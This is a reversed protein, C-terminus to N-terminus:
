ETKTRRSLLSIFMKKQMREIKMEGGDTSRLILCYIFVNHLLETKAAANKNPDLIIQPFLFRYNYWIHLCQACLFDTAPQDFQRYFCLHHRPFHVLLLEGAELYTNHIRFSGGSDLDQAINWLNLLVVSARTMENHVWEGAWNFFPGCVFGTWTPPPLGFACSELTEYAMLPIELLFWRMKQRGGLSFVINHYCLSCHFISLWSNLNNLIGYIHLCSEFVCGKKKSM